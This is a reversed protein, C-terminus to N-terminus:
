SGNALWCSASSKIAKMLAQPQSVARAETRRSGSVGWATSGARACRNVELRPSLLGPVGVGTPGCLTNGWRISAGAAVDDTILTLEVGAPPQGPDFPTYVVPVAASGLAHSAFAMKTEGTSMQAYDGAGHVFEYGIGFAREYVDVAETVDNVHIITYGLRM